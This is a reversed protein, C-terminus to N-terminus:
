RKTSDSFPMMMDQTEKTPKGQSPRDEKQVCVRQHLSEISAKERPSDGRLGHIGSELEKGAGVQKYAAEAPMQPSEKIGESVWQISGAQPTFSGPSTKSFVGITM